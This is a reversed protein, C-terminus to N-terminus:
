EPLEFRYGETIKEELFEPLFKAASSYPKDHLAIVSGSRVKRNLVNLADADSFSADFDYPMIDWFIIRYSKKLYRYQRYSLRGFPPRFIKSSTFWSAKEIDDCYEKCSVTWGNLHNYGHNGVLHGRIRIEDILSPFNEAAKGNCFFVAKVKYRDLLNLFGGTSRPDPGDDFTLCLVKDKTTLRFLADPYLRAGIFSPRFIRM